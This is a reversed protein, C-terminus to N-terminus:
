KCCLFCQYNFEPDCPRYGTTDRIIGPITNDFDVQVDVNFSKEKARMGHYHLDCINMLWHM